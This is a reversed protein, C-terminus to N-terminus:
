TFVPMTGSPMGVRFLRVQLSILRYLGILTTLDVIGAHGIAREAQSYEVDDLDGVTVLTRACNFVVQEVPDEMTIPWGHFIANIEPASVGANHGARVHASWMYECHDMGAVLLITLETMRNTLRGAARLENGLQNVMRSVKPSYLWLNFPGNFSGDPNVAEPRARALIEAHYGRGDSNLDCEPLLPLRRNEDKM